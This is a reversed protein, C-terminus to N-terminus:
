GVRWNPYVYLQDNRDANAQEHSNGKLQQDHNLWPHHILGNANKIYTLFNDMALVISKRKRFGFQYQHLKGGRELEYVLRQTFIKDLMKGWTPILCIPRYSTPLTLDKGEKPILAVRTRKWCDPFIGRSLCTNFIQIFREFDTM